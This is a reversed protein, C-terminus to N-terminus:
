GHDVGAQGRRLLGHGPTRDRVAGASAIVMLNDLSWRGPHAELAEVIPLAMADGVINITHMEHDSALQLSQEADFGRGPVVGAIGGNLIAIWSALQASGHIMPPAAHVHLGDGNEHLQPAIEEPTEFPEGGPNGGQLAAFFIDVHRWMVGRPMGTTGGTYIVFLDDESRTQFNREAGAAALAAEYAPGPSMKLRLTGTDAEAVCGSLEEEHILAVLDANDCVYSLEEAVYRYNVNITVARIKWAALMCELYENGNYLYLGIHDGARLGQATWHNALRTAREDLEGFTLTREAVIVAPRDPFSDALSEYIDALNFQM